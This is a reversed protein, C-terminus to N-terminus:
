CRMRRATTLFIKSSILWSGEIAEVLGYLHSMGNLLYSKANNSAETGSTVRVGFNRYKNIFCHAWQASVPLCPNDFYLLMVQQDNFEDCLRAWAKEYDGKTQTFVM